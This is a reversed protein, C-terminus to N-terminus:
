WLHIVNGITSRVESKEKLNACVATFKITDDVSRKVRKLSSETSTDADALVQFIDPKLAEMCNIYTQVDILKRGHRTWISVSNKEHYGQPTIM